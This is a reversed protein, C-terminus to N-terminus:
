NLLESKFKLCCREKNEPFVIDWSLTIRFNDKKLEINQPLEFERYWSFKETVRNIATNAIWSDSSIISFKFSKKKDLIILKLENIKFYDNRDKGWSYYLFDTRVKYKSDIKLISIEIQIPTNINRNFIIDTKILKELSLSDSFYSKQKIPRIVLDSNLNKNINFSNKLYNNIKSGVAFQNKANAYCPQNSIPNYPHVLFTNKSNYKGGIVIKPYDVIILSDFLIKRGELRNKNLLDKYFYPVGNKIKKAIVIFFCSNNEHNNKKIDGMIFEPFFIYKESTIPLGSIYVQKAFSKPSLKSIQLLANLNNKLNKFIYFNHNKLKLNNASNTLDIKLFSQWSLVGITGIFFIYITYQIIQYNFKEIILSFFRGKILIMPPIFIFYHWFHWGSPPNTIEYILAPIYFLLFLIIEKKSSIVGDKRIKLSIYIVLGYFSICSFLFEIQVIYDPISYYGYLSTGHNIRHLVNQLGIIKLVQLFSFNQNFFTKTIEINPEYYQQKYILYPLFCLGVLGVGIFIQKLPVKIKFLLCIVVPVLYYTAM